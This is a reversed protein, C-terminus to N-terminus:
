VDQEQQVAPVHDIFYIDFIAHWSMLHRKIQVDHHCSFRVQHDPLSSWASERAYLRPHVYGHDMWTMWTWGDM